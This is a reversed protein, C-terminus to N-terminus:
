ESVDLVFLMSLLLFVIRFISIDAKSCCNVSQFFFMEM